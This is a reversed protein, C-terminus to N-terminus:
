PNLPYLEGWNPGWEGDAKIPISFPIANEMISLMEHFAEDTQPSNEVVSWDLEDHVVLRPVGIVDFVGAKWCKVMATKMLDAASGQVLANVAKHLYARRINPGYVKVATKFRLAPPREGKPSYKPEWMDFVRRRGSITKTFGNSEAFHSVANM